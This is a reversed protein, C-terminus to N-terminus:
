VIACGLTCLDRSMRLGTLIGCQASGAPIIVRSTTPILGSLEAPFDSPIRYGTCAGRQAVHTLIRMASDIEEVCTPSAGADLQGIAVELRDGTLGSIRDQLYEEVDRGSASGLDERLKALHGVLDASPPAAIRLSDGEVWCSGRIRPARSAGMAITEGSLATVEKAGVYRAIDELSGVSRDDLRSHCLLVSITRRALNVAITHNVMGKAIDNNRDYFRTKDIIGIGITFPLTAM